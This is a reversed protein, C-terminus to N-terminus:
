YRDGHINVKDSISDSAWVPLVPATQLHRFPSSSTLTFHVCCCHRKAETSPVTDNRLRKFRLWLGPPPTFTLPTSTWDLQLLCVKVTLFSDYSIVNLRPSFFLFCVAAESLWRFYFNFLLYHFLFLLGNNQIWFLSFVLGIDLRFNILYTYLYAFYINKWDFCFFITLPLLFLIFYKM